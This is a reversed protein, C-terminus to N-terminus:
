EQEARRPNDGTAVVGDTEDGSEDWRDGGSIASPVFRRSRRLLREAWALRRLREAFGLVFGLVM